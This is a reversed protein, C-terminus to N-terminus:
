KYFFSAIAIVVYNHVYNIPFNQSFDILIKCMCCLFPFLSLLFIISVSRGEVGEEPERRLGERARKM